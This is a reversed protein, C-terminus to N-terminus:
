FIGRAKLTATPNFTAFIEWRRKNPIPYHTQFAQGHFWGVSLDRTLSLTGVSFFRRGREFRDSNASMYGPILYHQDVHAVGTTITLRSIPRLDASLSVGQGSTAAVRQYADGKIAVLVKVRRPIRVTIAQRLLDRGEEYTYDLSSSVHSGLRAGLLVQGYNWDSLRGARVFFNPERYDGIFGTTISIQSLVGTRRWIVREGVIYADNDYATVESSEGRNIYLGGFQLELSSSPLAALFLQKVNFDGTYVGLGGATNNWGSVLHAGSFAGVHLSYRAREDFLLRARLQPQWQLTSSTLRGTDSEV